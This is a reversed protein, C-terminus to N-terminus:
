RRTITQCQSTGRFCPCTHRLSVPRIGVPLIGATMAVVALCNTTPFLAGMKGALTGWGLTVHSRCNILCVGQPPGRYRTTLPVPAIPNQPRRATVTTPRDFVPCSRGNKFHVRARHDRHMVKWPLALHTIDGCDNDLRHKGLQFGISFM